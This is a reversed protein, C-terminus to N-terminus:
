YPFINEETQTLAQVGISKESFDFTICIEETNQFGPGGISKRQLQPLCVAELTGLVNKKQQLDPQKMIELPFFYNSLTNPLQLFILHYWKEVM